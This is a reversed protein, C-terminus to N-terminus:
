DAAEDDLGQCTLETVMKRSIEECQGIAVPQVGFHDPYNEYPWNPTPASPTLENVPVELDSVVQYELFCGDYAFGCLLPLLTANPLAINLRSDLLDLTM